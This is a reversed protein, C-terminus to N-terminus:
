FHMWNYHLLKWIRVAVDITNPFGFYIFLYFQSIEDLLDSKLNQSEKVSIM